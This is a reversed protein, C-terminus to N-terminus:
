PRDTPNVAWAFGRLTDLRQLLGRITALTRELARHDIADTASGRHAVKNRLDTAVAIRRGIDDDVLRITSDNSSYLQPVYKLLKLVPPAPMEELLWRTDPAVTSIHQKVGVELAAM